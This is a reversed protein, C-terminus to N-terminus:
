GVALLKFILRTVRAWALVATVCLGVWVSFWPALPNPEPTVPWTWLWALSAVAVLFGWRIAAAIYHLIPRYAQREKLHQVIWRGDIALLVALSTGLFGVAIGAVTLSSSFFLPSSPQSLGAAKHMIGISLGAVFPYRGDWTKNIFPKPALHEASSEITTM